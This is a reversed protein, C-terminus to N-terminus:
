EDMFYAWLWPWDAPREVLNAAVPNSIVYEITSTFDAEDRITRDWMGPQWLAHHNGHDWSVRTALSKFANAFKLIDMSRPGILVHLHDPMLCAAFLEVRDLRREDMVLTWIADGLDRRWASIEPHANM